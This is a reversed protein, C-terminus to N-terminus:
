NKTKRKLFALVSNSSRLIIKLLALTCVESAYKVGNFGFNIQILLRQKQITYYM